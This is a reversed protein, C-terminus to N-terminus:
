GSKPTAFFQPPNPNADEPPLTEQSAKPAKEDDHGPQKLVPHMECSLGGVCLALAITLRILKM